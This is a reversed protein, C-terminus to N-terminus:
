VCVWGKKSNSHLYQFAFFTDDRSPDAAIDLFAHHRVVVVFADMDSQTNFQFTPKWGSQKITLTCSRSRGGVTGTQVRRFSIFCKFCLV